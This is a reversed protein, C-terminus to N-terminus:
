LGLDLILNTDIGGVMVAIVMDLGWICGIWEERVLDPVRVM